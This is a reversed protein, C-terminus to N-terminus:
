KQDRLNYVNKEIKVSGPTCRHCASGAEPNNAIMKYSVKAVATFYLKVYNLLNVQMKKPSFIM